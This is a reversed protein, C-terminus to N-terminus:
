IYYNNLKLKELFRFNNNTLEIRQGNEAIIINEAKIKTEIAIEKHNELHIDEGHVPMFYRPSIKKVLDKM